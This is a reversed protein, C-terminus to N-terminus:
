HRFQFEEEEEEVEEEFCGPCLLNVPLNDSKLWTNKINAQELYIKNRKNNMMKDLGEADKDFKM